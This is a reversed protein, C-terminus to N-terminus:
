RVWWRGGCLFKISFFQPHNYQPENEERQQAKLKKRMM